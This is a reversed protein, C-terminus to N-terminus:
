IAHRPSEESANCETLDQRGFRGPSVGTWRKFARSFASPESYGLLAATEAVSVVGSELYQIALQRRLNDLAMACAAGREQLGQLLPRGEEGMLDDSADM